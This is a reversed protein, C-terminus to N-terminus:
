LLSPVVQIYLHFAPIGVDTSREAKLTNLHDDAVVLHALTFIALNSKSFPTKILLHGLLAEQSGCYQNM